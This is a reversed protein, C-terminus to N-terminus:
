KSLRKYVGDFSVNVGGCHKNDKATLYAGGLFTLELHCGYEDDFVLRRNYIAAKEYLEGFHINNNSGQWIAMAEILIDDSFHSKSLYIDNQGYQWHGLLDEYELNPNFLPELMSSELWGVTIGSKGSFWACNFHMYEDHIYVIYNDSIVLEDGDLLYTKTKCSFDDNKLCADIDGYFYAKNESAIDVRASLLDANQWFMAQDCHRGEQGFASGALLLFLWLVRKM